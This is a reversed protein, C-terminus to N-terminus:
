WVRVATVCPISAMDSVGVLTPSLGAMKALNRIMADLKGTDYSNSLGGINESSLSKLNSLIMMAALTVTKLHLSPSYEDEVGGDEGFRFSADRFALELAEDSVSYPEIKSAVATRIDM